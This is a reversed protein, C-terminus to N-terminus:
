EGKAEAIIHKIIRYYEAGRESWGEEWDDENYPRYCDNADHDVTDLSSGAMVRTGDELVIDGNFDTCTSDRNIERLIDELTWVSYSDGSAVLFKRKMGNEESSEIWDM